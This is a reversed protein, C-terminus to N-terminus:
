CTASKGLFVKQFLDIFCMLISVQVQFCTRSLTGRRRALGRKLTCTEFSHLASGVQKKYRKAVFNAAHRWDLAISSSFTSVKKMAFCERMAGCAFPESEVKVLM